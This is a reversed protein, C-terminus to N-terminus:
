KQILGKLFFADLLCTEFIVSVPIQLITYFYCNVSFQVM